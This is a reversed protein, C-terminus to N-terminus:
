LKRIKEIFYHKKNSLILIYVGSQFNRLDIILKQNFTRQILRQNNVNYIELQTMKSDNMEINLYSEFPNPYIRFPKDYKEINSAYLCSDNDINAKPNYNLAASDMCGFIKAICSGNDVNANPNFNFANSDTCGYVKPICSSDSTNANANYNISATDMCGFVKPICSGNDVNASPNYNFANSDTCGYVKPICSSDSTNASPNYNISATDLCGFIKPICSGNDVNANPNFNFANSDTCGYVKPICSSDSTNANANYNISATDLCGFVKPICSGNDVNANPNYNFANSDTCGYIFNHLLLPYADLKGYGYTNNEVQGTFTDKKAKQHITQIMETAGVDKNKQLMLACVGAVVPSAMSTGGARTYFTNKSLRKRNTTDALYQIRLNSDITTMTVSGTASIDPKILGVRTPGKSSNAAIVNQVGGIFRYVSDPDLYGVKNIYNGVSIVNPSCQFGSCLSMDSDPLKYYAMSPNALVSPLGTTITPSTTQLSANVWMDLKGHGTAMMRWAWTNLITDIYVEWKVVNKYISIYHNISGLTDGNLGIAKNSFSVSKNLLLSDKYNKFSYFYPLSIAKFNSISDARIGISISDIDELNSYFNYYVVNFNALRTFNTFLTDQNPQMQIHQNLNGANGNAAVVIRGKKSLIMSDILESILDIGDHSGDYTGVSTNIVCPLNLSDAKNFIYRIGDVVQNLTTNSKLVVGIIKSKPAVGKYNSDLNGNGCSIGTVNTGHGTADKLPGINSNLDQNSYEKGYNFGNPANSNGNHDWLFQIRSNGNLEKFDQNRYDMGFDVIGILVSDGQYAQSLNGLCKHITDINNLLRMSDMLPKVEYFADELHYIWPQQALFQIHHLNTYVTFVSDWRSGIRIKNNRQVYQEFFLPHAKIVIPYDEPREKIKLLIGLSQGYSLFNIIIFLFSFLVRKKM